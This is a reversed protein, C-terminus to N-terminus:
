RGPPGQALLTPRTVVACGAMLQGRRATPTIAPGHGEREHSLMRRLTARSARSTRSLRSSRSTVRPRDIQNIQNTQDTQNIRSQACRVVVARGSEEKLTLLPDGM